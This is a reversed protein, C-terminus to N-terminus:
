LIDGTEAILSEFTATDLYGADRAIYLQSRVEGASGKAIAVFQLFVRNGDREVGEAINSMVSISSRRIQDRLAFDRSFFDQETLEYIRRTRARARKAPSSLKL